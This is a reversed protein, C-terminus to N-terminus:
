HSASLNWILPSSTVSRASESWEKKTCSAGIRKKSGHCAGIEMCPRFNWLFPVPESRAVPRTASCLLGRSGTTGKGRIQWPVAFRCHIRSPVFRGSGSLRWWNVQNANVRPGLDAIVSAALKDVSNRRRAFASTRSSGSTSQLSSFCSCGQASHSGQSTDGFIESRPVHTVDTSSISM